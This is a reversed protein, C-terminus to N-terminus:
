GLLFEIHLKNFLDADEYQPWHGCRNMVVYKAGPIM